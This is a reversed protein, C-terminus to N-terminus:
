YVFHLEKFIESKYNSEEETIIQLVHGTSHYHLISCCLYQITTSTSYLQKKLTKVLKMQKLVIPSKKLILGHINTTSTKMKLKKQILNQSHLSPNESIQQIRAKGGKQNKEHSICFHPILILIRSAASEHIGGEKIIVKWVMGMKIGILCQDNSDTKCNFVLNQFPNLSNSQHLLVSQCFFPHICFNTPWQHSSPQATCHFSKKIWWFWHNASILM